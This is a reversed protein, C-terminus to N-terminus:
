GLFEINGFNESMKVWLVTMRMTIYGANVYCCVFFDGLLIIFCGRFLLLMDDEM